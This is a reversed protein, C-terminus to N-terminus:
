NILKELIPYEAGPKSTSALTSLQNIIEPADWIPGILRAIENGDHDILLTTPLGGIGMAALLDSENGNYLALNRIAYVSYFARLQEFSIADVSIALIQLEPDAGLKAQLRDLAPMEKRCPPCWTAWVNVLLHKGKFDALTRQHGSADIFDFPQVPIPAKHVRLLPPQSLFPALTERIQLIAVPFIVIGILVMLPFWKSSATRIHESM